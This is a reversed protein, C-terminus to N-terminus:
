ESAVAVQEQESSWEEATQREHQKQLTHELTGNALTLAEMSSVTAEARQRLKNSALFLSQLSKITSNVLPTTSTATEAALSILSNDGLQTNVRSM